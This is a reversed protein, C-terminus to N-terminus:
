STIPVKFILKAIDAYESTSNYPYSRVCIFINGDPDSAYTSVDVSLGSGKIRAVYDKYAGLLDIERFVFASFYTRFYEGDFGIKDPYGFYSSSYQTKSIQTMTTKNIISLYLGGELFHIGDNKDIYVNFNTDTTTSVYSGAVASFTENMKYLTKYGVSIVFLTGQSDFAFKGDKGAIPYSAIINLDFDMKKFNSSENVWLFGNWIKIDYLQGTASYSKVEAGTVINYKKVVRSSWIAYVYNDDFALEICWINTGQTATSWVTVGDKIQYLKGDGLGTYANGLHDAAVLEITQTVLSSWIYEIGVKNFKTSSIPISDGISYDGENKGGRVIGQM